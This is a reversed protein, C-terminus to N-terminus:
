MRWSKEVEYLIKMSRFWVMGYWVMDYRSLSSLSAYSFEASLSEVGLVSSSHTTFPHNGVRRGNWRWVYQKSARSTNGYRSLVPCRHM